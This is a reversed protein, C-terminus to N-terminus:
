PERPGLSDIFQQIGQSRRYSKARLGLRRYLELEYHWGVSQADRPALGNEEGLRRDVDMQLQREGETRPAEIANGKADLLQGLRRGKQRMMWLDVTSGEQPLNMVDNFYRGIKPGLVLSGPYYDNLRVGKANPAFQKIERGTVRGRLFQATGDQGLSDLMTNLKDIQFGIGQAPWNKGSPQKLPFRGTERFKEWIRAGNFAELLPNSNNSMAASMAKQIANQTSNALEPFAGRLLEDGHATDPGYWDVGSYPQELQQAFEKRGLHMMRRVKVSDPADDPVAGMSKRVRDELYKQVDATQLTEGVKPIIESTLPHIDNLPMGPRYHEVDYKLAYERAASHLDRLQRKLGQIAQQGAGSAVADSVIAKSWQPFNTVGQGLKAAGWIAMDKFDDLPIGANLRTGSFTGRDRMRQLAADGASQLGQWMGGPQATTTSSVLPARAARTDAVAAQAQEPTMGPAVRVGAAARIRDKLQQITTKSISAPDAVGAHEGLMRWEDPGFSDLFEPTMKNASVVQFLQNVKKDRALQEFDPAPEAKPTEVPLTGSAQMQDRLEQQLQEVASLQRPPETVPPAPAPEAGGSPQPLESASVSLEATPAAKRAAEQAAAPPVEVPGVANILDYLRQVQAQQQPNLKAFKKGFGSDPSLALEDLTVKPAYTPAAEAAAAPTAPTVDAAEPGLAAIRAEEAAGGAPPMPISGGPGLQREPPIVGPPQVIREQAEYARAGRALRADQAALAAQADIAAQARALADLAAADAVAARGGAVGTRLIKPLSPIMAIGAGRHGGLAEGLAVEGVHKVTERLVPPIAGGAFTRATSAADAASGLGSAIPEHAFPLLTGVGHTLAGLYDGQDLYEAMKQGAGGFFPISYWLHNAAANLDGRGFAKLSDVLQQGSRTPEQNIGTTITNLANYFRDRAPGQPNGVILDLAAQGGGGIVDKALNFGSAEGLIGLARKGEAVPDLVPAIPSPVAAPGPHAPVPYAPPAPADEWPDLSVAPQAAPAAAAPADEWPDLTIPGPIVKPETGRLQPM